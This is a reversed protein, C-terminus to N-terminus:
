INKTIKYHFAHTNTFKLNCVLEFLSQIHDQVNKINNWETNILVLAQSRQDSFFNSLDLKMSFNNM